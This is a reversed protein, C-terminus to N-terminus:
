FNKENEMQSYWMACFAAVTIIFCILLPMVNGSVPTKLLDSAAEVTQAIPSSYETKESM